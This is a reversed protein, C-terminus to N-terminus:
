RARERCSASRQCLAAIETATEPQPAIAAAESAANKKAETSQKNDAAIQKIRAEYQTRVAEVRHKSWDTGHKFGYALTALGIALATILAAPNSVIVTLGNFILKLFGLIGGLVVSVIGPLVGVGPVFSLAGTLKSVFSLAKLGAFISGIM